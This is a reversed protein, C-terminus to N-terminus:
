SAKTSCHPSDRRTPRTLSIDALPVTVLEEGTPQEISEPSITKKKGTRFLRGVPGSLVAPLFILDGILAASLLTLMMVGFRQTPTFTSFAFVALGLGGILTTQSMATACREYALMAAGKRDRGEDLGKRFWTLYHVTDDVAVGLAVSATMMTGIDVMIGAWGMIGFIIVVPFLNPIMSVLGASPSKLVIMMVLAILVFALALSEFLGRMLEHQTKYVLPVLGTYIAEIGDVGAERYAALVPEVKERLDDVFLGYDLDGLAEVRASVRWLEKGQDEDVTLYERFEPRHEELKDSLIRDRTRRRDIGAIREAISPKRKDPRIDPAFTAASLAGGVDDLSEVAREVHHALRMREVMNLDCKQNDVCIVVEMPVLPGIHEELWGYDAIIEADPSFLKMLKISTNIQFVGFAFFVMVALCVGSVLVNHRVVAGGIWRWCRLILTDPAGADGKNGHEAAYQRSPLYHLCAPLLLFILVLTALVGAASYIGFKSIPIVHSVCLSGLGLATTVAAITCPWFGHELARSPAGDLGKERIADHYYNIIHISGSIALVYVLSPMSLLVADCTGGSFFVIALGVGASLIAISFVMATLRISRFVLWSIGLGVVASLGALRFLTREGEIDIAVNDVPPGGLRIGEYSQQRGFILEAFFETATNWSRVFINGSHQKKEPEINCERALERIKELTARLNKGQAQKTLTVVLCTKNHDPGILSGELRTLVEEDSLEPYRGQLENILSRGTIVSKFYRPEDAPRAAAVDEPPVLKKTLLELRQDDLTCGEWSALVFQEHPFHQQFWRHVATEPFDDPLWDRVDNRNSQLARMSGMWIFPLLFVLATVIAFSRRAFFPQNM